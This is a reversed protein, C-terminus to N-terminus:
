WEVTHALVERSSTFTRYTALFCMRYVAEDDEELPALQRVLRVLTGAKISRHVESTWLRRNERSEDVDCHVRRLYLSFVAGEDETQGM